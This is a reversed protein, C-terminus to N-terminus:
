SGFSQADHLQKVFSAHGETVTNCPIQIDPECLTNIGPNM